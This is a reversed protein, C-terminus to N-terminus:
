LKDMAKFVKQEVALLRDDLEYQVLGKLADIRLQDIDKQIEQLLEKM